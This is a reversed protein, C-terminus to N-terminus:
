KITIFQTNTIHLYQPLVQHLLHLIQYLLLAAVEHHLAGLEGSVLPAPVQELALVAVDLKVGVM